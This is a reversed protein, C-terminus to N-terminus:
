GKLVQIKAQIAQKRESATAKLAEYEAKAEDARVKAEQIEADISEVAKELVATAQALADTTTTERKRARTSGGNAKRTANYYAGQLSKVPQGFEEALQRFADAKTLGGAVLADIRERVQEAKTM